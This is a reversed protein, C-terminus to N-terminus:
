GSKRRQQDELRKMLVTARYLSEFSGADTWASKLISYTLLRDTCCRDSLSLLLRSGRKDDMSRMASAISSATISTGSCMAGQVLTPKKGSIRQVRALAEPQSNFITSCLSTMGPM